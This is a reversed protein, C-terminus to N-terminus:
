AADKSEIGNPPRENASRSSHERAISSTFLTTDQPDFGRVQDAFLDSLADHNM